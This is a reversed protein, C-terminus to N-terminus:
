MVHSQIRASAGLVVVCRSRMVGQLGFVPICSGLPLCLVCLPRLTFCFLVGRQLFWVHCTVLALTTPFSRRVGDVRFGENPLTQPGMRWLFDLYCHVVQLTIESNLGVFRVAAPGFLLMSFADTLLSTARVGKLLTVVCRACRTCIRALTRGRWRLDGNSRTWAPLPAASACRQHYALSGVAAGLGVTHASYM